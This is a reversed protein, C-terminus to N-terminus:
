ALKQSKSFKNPFFVTLMADFAIAIGFLLMCLDNQFWIIDGGFQAVKAILFIIDNNLLHFIGM